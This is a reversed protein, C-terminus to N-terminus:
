DVMFLSDTRPFFFICLLLSSLLPTLLSSPLLPLNPLSLLFYRKIDKKPPPAGSTLLQNMTDHTFGDYRCKMLRKREREGEGMQGSWREEGGRREREKTTSLYKKSKRFSMNRLKDGGQDLNELKPAKLM